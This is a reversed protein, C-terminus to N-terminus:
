IYLGSTYYESFFLDFHLLQYNFVVKSGFWLCIYINANFNFIGTYVYVCMPIKLKLFKYEDSFM